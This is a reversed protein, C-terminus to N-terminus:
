IVVTVGAAGDLRLKEEYIADEVRKRLPDGLRQEGLSQIFEAPELRLAAVNVQLCVPEVSNRRTHKIALADVASVARRALALGESRDASHLLALFEDGGVRFLRETAPIAARLARAVRLIAQDCAPHGFEANLWILGDIDAWLALLSAGPVEAGLERCTPLGTLADTV